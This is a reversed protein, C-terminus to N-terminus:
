RGCPEWPFVFAREGVPVVSAQRWVGLLRLRGEVTTTWAGRVGRKCLLSRLESEPVHTRSHRVDTPEVLTWSNGRPTGFVVKDMRGWEIALSAWGFPPRTVPREVLLRGDALLGELRGRRLAEGAAPSDQDSLAPPRLPALLALSYSLLALGLVLPRRVSSAHLLETLGLAALPILGAEVLLVFRDAFVPHEKGLAVPALGAAALMGFVMLPQRLLSPRHRLALLAAAAFAAPGAAWTVLASVRRVLMDTRTVHGVFARSIDETAQLFLLPDGHVRWQAMMFAAPGLLPLASLLIRLLVGAHCDPQAPVPVRQWPSSCPLCGANM